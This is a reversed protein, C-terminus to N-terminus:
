KEEADTMRRPAEFLADVIHGKEDTGFADDLIAQISSEDSQVGVGGSHVISEPQSVFVFEPGVHLTTAPTAGDTTEQTAGDDLDM